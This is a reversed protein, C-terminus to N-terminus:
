DSRCLERGATEGAFVARDVPPIEVLTKPLIEVSPLIEVPLIRNRESGTDGHFDQNPNQEAM